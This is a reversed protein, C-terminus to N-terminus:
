FIGGLLVTSVVAGGAAGGIMEYRPEFPEFDRRAGWESALTFTVAAGLFVLVAALVLRDTNYARVPDLDLTYHFGFLDTWMSQHFARIPGSYVPVVHHLDPLMAWLGGGTGIALGHRRVTEYRLALPTTFLVVISAGVLFHVIAQAM